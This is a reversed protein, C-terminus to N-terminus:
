GDRWRIRWTGGGSGGGRQGFREKVWERADRDPKERWYGAPFIGVAAAFVEPCVQCADARQLGIHGTQVERHLADSEAVRGRRVHPARCRAGHALPEFVVLVDIPLFAATELRLLPARALKLPGLLPEIPPLLLDLLNHGLHARM